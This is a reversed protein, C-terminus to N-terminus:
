INCKRRERCSNVGNQKVNKAMKNISNYVSQCGGILKSGQILFVCTEGFNTLFYFVSYGVIFRSVVGIGANSM